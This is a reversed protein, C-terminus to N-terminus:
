RAGDQERLGQAFEAMGRLYQDCHQTKGVAIAKADIGGPFVPPIYYEFGDDEIADAIGAACESAPVKDVDM